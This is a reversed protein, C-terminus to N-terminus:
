AHENEDGGGQLEELFRILLDPLDSCKIDEFILEVCEAVSRKQKRERIVEQVKEAFRETAAKIRKQVNGRHIPEKGKGEQRALILAIEDLTLKEVYRYCLLLRDEPSLRALAERLIEKLLRECEERGVIQEPTEEDAEESHRPTESKKAPAMGTIEKYKRTYRYIERTVMTALYSVLPRQGDYTALRGSQGPARFCEDLVDGCAEDSFRRSIKEAIETMKPSYEQVFIGVARDDAQTVAEALVVDRVLNAGLEGNVIRVAVAIGDALRSRRKQQKNGKREKGFLGPQWHFRWCRWSRRCYGIHGPQSPTVTGSCLKTTNRKVWVCVHRLLRECGKKYPNMNPQRKLWEEDDAFFGIAKM